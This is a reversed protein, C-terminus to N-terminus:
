KLAEYVKDEGRYLFWNFAAENKSQRGSSTAYMAYICGVFGGATRTSLFGADINDELLIWEDPKFAYLFSYTNGHAEIKLQLENGSFESGVKQSTMLEMDPGSSDAKNLSKYLQIVPDNDEMSKCLFYFYSENQFVLLGAKENSNDASFDLSTSVYGYAHQQRRGIFSPNGTGSCTEPRLDITLYGKRSSLDFWKERVTRLFVWYLDLSDEDFNEMLLFNGSLPIGTFDGANKVPVPYTYQVEDYGPNIVPWGTEWSVPALFTERGTNYYNKDYPRYPRCGLFVAWWEGNEAVTLDAHGTSTIPFPRDPNLNRQTLIPNGEYPIYPGEIKQSRFVVESHEYDTGGEAAILFYTGGKKFIHPGEIWVPKRNIDTGGNVLIHEEGKVKLNEKDFEYMRLTRHGSYLSKNDPPISNYIIYAKGNDDFFLSPDIGDIQPIWVPNSWPGAPNKATIVFNNGGGVLTCTIYFIGENYRIAPAFIGRSVGLGDLNLQDPRNMANGIQTWHGLDNSHFVPIGPFYSFTSNVLYYDNDAKCISPDPYFGALIPNFFFTDNQAKLDALLFCYMMVLFFPVSFLRKKM